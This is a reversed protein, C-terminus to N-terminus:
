RSHHAGRQSALTRGPRSGTGTRVGRRLEYQIWRTVGTCASTARGSASPSEVRTTQRSDTDAVQDGHLEVHRSAIWAATPGLVETRSTRGGGRITGHSVYPLGRRGAMAPFMRDPYEVARHGRSAPPTQSWISAQAPFRSTCRPRIQDRRPNRVPQARSRCAFPFRFPSREGRPRPRSRARPRTVGCARPAAAPPSSDEPLPRRANRSRSVSGAGGLQGLRGLEKGPGRRFPTSSPRPGKWRSTNGPRIRPIARRM